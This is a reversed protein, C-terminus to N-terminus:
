DGHRTRISVGTQFSINVHLQDSSIRRSTTPPVINFAILKPKVRGGLEKMRKVHASYCVYM